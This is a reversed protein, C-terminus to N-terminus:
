GKFPNVVEVGRIVQGHNLDESYIVKCKAASASCIILSDWFSLQNVVSTDIADFIIATTITVTEFDSFLVLLNKITVPDHGLKRTMAIYFEQIVQTSIVILNDSAAQEFLKRTMKMKSESMGSQMYVLINTDIFVKDNM